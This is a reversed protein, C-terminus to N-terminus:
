DRMLTLSERAYTVVLQEIQDRDPAVKSTMSLRVMLVANGARTTLNAQTHWAPGEWSELPSPPAELETSSYQFLAM